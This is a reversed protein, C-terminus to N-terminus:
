TEKKEIKKKKKGIKMILPVIKKLNIDLKLQTCTQIQTLYAYPIFIHIKAPSSLPKTDESNKPSLNQLKQKQM